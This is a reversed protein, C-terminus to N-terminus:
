RRAKLGRVHETMKADLAGLDEGFVNKFEESREEASDFVLPKRNRLRTVYENWAPRRKTALFHVLAWSEAYAASASAPDRFRNEGQILTTLADAPRSNLSKQFEALRWPNAQGVTTWRSGSSFDPTEFYMALGESVWMPNDAYRVQLGTNFALQHVAEHVVTAVSAPSRSLRRTIEDRQTAEGLAPGPQDATLDYLVVRNTRASYYGYAEAVEAAGDRIAFERFQAKNQLVLIPLLSETPALPVKQREWHALFGTRLRELMSGCWNAYARSARSIVVYHKTKVAISPGGAVEKLSEALEEVSSPTFPESVTQRKEIETAELTWYTGFRDELLLGGQQDEVVVRGTVRDPRGEFPKLQLTVHRDDAGASLPGALVCCFLLLGYLWAHGLRRDRVCALVWFGVVPKGGAELRRGGAKNRVGFGGM